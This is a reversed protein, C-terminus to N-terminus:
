LQKTVMYSVEITQNTQQEANESIDMNLIENPISIEM